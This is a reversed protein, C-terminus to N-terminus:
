PLVTVSAGIRALQETAQSMASDKCEQWEAMRKVDRMDPRECAQKIGANIRGALTEAGAASTVDLDAYSIAVTDQAVAPAATLTAVVAALITFTKM